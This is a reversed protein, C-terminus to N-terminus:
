MSHHKRYAAEIQPMLTESTIPKIVYGCTGIEQAKKQYEKESFATLMVICVQYEALIRRSAELGDMIPMRIDMLVIDPRTELVVQIADKGNAADGVVELGQRRLMKRIQLQTIGEDEVVVVRKGTLDMPVTQADNQLLPSQLPSIIYSMQSADYDPVIM